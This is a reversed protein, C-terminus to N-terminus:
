EPRDPIDVGYVDKLVPLRNNFLLDDSAALSHKETTVWGAHRGVQLAMRTSNDDWHGGAYALAVRKVRQRVMKDRRM